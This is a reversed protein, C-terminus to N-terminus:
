PTLSAQHSVLNLVVVSRGQADRSLVVMAEKGPGRFFQTRSNSDMGETAAASNANLTDELALGQRKLWEVLHRSNNEVSAANVLVVHQATKGEDVSETHQMLQTGEGLALRLPATQRIFAAQERQATAWDAVGLTGRTGGSVTELTVTAYFQGFPRGIVTRGSTEDMVVHGGQQGKFWAVCDKLNARSIFGKLQMPVGNVRINPAIDFAQADRPLDIDPWQAAIAQGCCLLLAAGLWSRVLTSRPAVNLAGRRTGLRPTAVPQPTFVLLM